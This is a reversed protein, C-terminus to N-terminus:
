IENRNRIEDTRERATKVRCTVRCNGFTPTQTMWTMPTWDQIPQNDMVQTFASKKMDAYCRATDHLLASHMLM